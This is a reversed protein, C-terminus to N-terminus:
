AGGKMVRSLIVFRQNGQVRLLLVKDGAALGRNLILYGNEVPLPIGNELCAMGELATQTHYEGELSEGTEEPQCTHSHALGTITHTHSLVPIKKEVVPETLYLVEARLPQMMTDVTVELPAASVVTGILLDTLGAARMSQQNIQQLVELLEM